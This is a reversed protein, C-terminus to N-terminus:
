EAEVHRAIRLLQERWGGENDAFARERQEPPLADFGSEVLTLRTGGPVAELTFTVLTTPGAFNPEAGPHWRFAFLREPEVREVFMDWAFGAYEPPETMTGHVRAGPVLEGELRCGFWRGFEAPDALARWVRSLPARLVTEKEIRDTVSRAATTQSM